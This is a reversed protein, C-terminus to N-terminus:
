GRIAHANDLISKVIKYAETAIGIRLNLQSKHTIWDTIFAGDLYNFRYLIIQQDINKYELEIKPLESLVIPTEEECLQMAIHDIVVQDIKDAIIEMREDPINRYLYKVTATHDRCLKLVKVAPLMRNHDIMFDKIKSYVLRPFEDTHISKRMAVM